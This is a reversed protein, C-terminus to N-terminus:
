EAITQTSNIIQLSEVRMRNSIGRMETKVLLDKSPSGIPLEKFGDTDEASVRGFEVWNELCVDCLNGATIGEIEEDLVVTYVGANLTIENVKATQGAGAGAIIDCELVHGANVYDFADSIDQSTTFTSSNDWECGQSNTSIPLGSIQSLKHKLIILDADQLFSYKIFVKSYEDQVQGSTLKATIFSGRSPFFPIDMCLCPNEVNDVANPYYGSYILQQYIQSTVGQLGIAGVRSSRSAGYDILNLFMFYHASAGNSTLTISIGDLANERTTALKFVTSSVNIVFYTAYTQLGGIPNNSDEVYRVPSGTAPVTAGTLITLEGTGLNIGSSQVTGIAVTSISPSYRHYLGVGPDYCWIGSPFNPAYNQIPIGFTNLDSAINIYLYDGSVQIADGYALQNQFDGWLQDKFYFPFTALVDFGGGNFYLLQGKRTLVIWSSKYAVVAVATDTGIPYGSNAESSGGDWVFFYADINKGAVAPALRTIIGMRNGNYSMGCIEFDSQITLDTEIQHVYSTDFQLVKNGDSVCMTNRNRFVEMAHINGSNFTSTPVAKIWATGNFYAWDGVNWVSVGDLTTNGAVNVTYYFGTTGIGSQLTPTNTSADWNGQNTANAPLSISQWAAGSTTRYYLQTPTAVYWKNNWWRGWTTFGLGLPKNANQDPITSISTSFLSVLYPNVSTPLLFQGSTTRGFSPVIGFNADGQNSKILASRNSLKIYGPEDFNINKTASINGFLDSTNPQSFKKTSSPISIM